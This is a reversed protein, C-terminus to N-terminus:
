EVATEEMGVDGAEDVAVEVEPERHLTYVIDRNKRVYCLLAPSVGKSSQDAFVDSAPVEKM